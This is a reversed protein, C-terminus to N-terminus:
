IKLRTSIVSFFTSCVRWFFGEDEIAKSPSTSSLVKVDNGHRWFLFPRLNQWFKNRLRGGLDTEKM